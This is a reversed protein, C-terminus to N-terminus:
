EEEKQGQELEKILAKVKRDDFWIGAYGGIFLLIGAATLLWGITEMRFLLIFRIVFPIAIAVVAGLAAFITYSLDNEKAHKIKAQMAAIWASDSAVTNLQSGCEPCFKATGSVQQHCVPCTHIENISSM